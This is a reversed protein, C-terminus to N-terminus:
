ARIVLISLTSTGTTTQVRLSTASSPLQLQHTAGASIEGAIAIAGSGNDPGWSIPNDGDNRLQIWGPSSLPLTVATDTTTVAVTSEGIGIAAQTYNKTGQNSPRRSTSNSVQVGTTVSIENAM